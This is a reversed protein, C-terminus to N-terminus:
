WRSYLECFRSYQYGEPHVQKYEQWLLQLTVHKYSRLETHISAFDPLPVSGEPRRSDVPFLTLELGEEDLDQPLPWSLGAAKARSLYNGVSSHPIGCSRGIQRNELGLEFKMRLVEHIKRMSLREAPM